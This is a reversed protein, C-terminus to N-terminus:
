PRIVVSNVGRVTAVAGEACVVLRERRSYVADGRGVPIVVVCARRRTRKGDIGFGDGAACGNGDGAYIVIDATRM